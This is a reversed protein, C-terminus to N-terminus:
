SSSFLSLLISSFISIFMKTEKETHVKDEEIRRRDHIKKQM